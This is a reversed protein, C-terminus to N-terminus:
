SPRLESLWRARVERADARTLDKDLTLEIRKAANADLAHKLLGLFHPPAMLVLRAGQDQLVPEVASALERAFKEAEVEKPETDPAVGPRGAGLSVARGGYQAGVPPGVPKRGNADSTLDRTRARSEAHEFSRVLQLEHGARERFLRARSADAVLIYRASM